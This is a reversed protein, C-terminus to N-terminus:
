ASPSRSSGSSSSVVASRVLSPGRGREVGAFTLVAGRCRTSPMGEDTSRGSREVIAGLGACTEGAGAGVTDMEARVVRREEELMAERADVTADRGEAGRAGEAVGATVAGGARRAADVEAVGRARGAGGVVVTVADVGRCVLAALGPRGGTAAGAEDEGATRGFPVPTLPADRGAEIRETAEVAEDRTRAAEVDVDASGMGRRVVEGVGETALRRETALVAVVRVFPGERGGGVRRGATEVEAEGTTGRRVAVEDVAGAADAAGTLSAGGRLCAEDVDRREVVDVLVVVAGGSRLGADDVESADRRDAAAVVVPVAPRLGDIDADALAVPAAPEAVTRAAGRAVRGGRTGAAPVDRREAAGRGAGDGVGPRGPVDRREPMGQMTVTRAPPGPPPLASLILAWTRYM